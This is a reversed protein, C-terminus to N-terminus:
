KPSRKDKIDEYGDEKFGQASPISFNSDTKSQYDDDNLNEHEDVIVLWPVITLIPSPSDGIYLVMGSRTLDNAEM